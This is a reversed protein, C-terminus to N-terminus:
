PAGTRDQPERPQRAAHHSDGHPPDYIANLGLAVLLLILDVAVLLGCGCAVWRLVTAGLEDGLADVLASMSLLLAFAVALCAFAAILITLLRRSVM